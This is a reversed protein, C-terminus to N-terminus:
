VARQPQRLALVGGVVRFQVHCLSKSRRVETNLSDAKGTRCAAARLKGRPTKGQMEMLNALVADRVRAPVGKGAATRMSGPRYRDM